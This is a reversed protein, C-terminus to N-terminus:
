RDRIRLYITRDDSRPPVNNTTFHLTCPHLEGPTGGALWATVYGGIFSEDHSTMPAEPIIEITAISDGVEALWETLNWTYDLDADPDKDIVRRGKHDVTFTTTM